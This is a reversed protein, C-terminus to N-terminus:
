KSPLRTEESNWLKVGKQCSAYQITTKTITHAAPHSSTCDVVSQQLDDSIM